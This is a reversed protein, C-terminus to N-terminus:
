PFVFTGIDVEVDPPADPGGAAVGVSGEHWWYEEAQLQTISIMRQEGAQVNTLKVIYADPTIQDVSPSFTVNSFASIYEHSLTVTVTPVTQSSINEVSVMMPGITQLRVRTPHRVEVSLIEGSGRVTETREGFLGFLALLPLLMLLPIGVKQVNKLIWKEEIDPPQPVGFEEETM